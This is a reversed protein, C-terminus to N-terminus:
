GFTKKEIVEFGLNGKVNEEEGPFVVLDEEDENFFVNFKEISVNLKQFSLSDRSLLPKNHIELCRRVFVDCHMLMTEIQFQDKEMFNEKFDNVEDNVVEVNKILSEQIKEAEIENLFSDINKILKIFSIKEIPFNNYCFFQKKIVDAEECIQKALTLLNLNKSHLQLQVKEFTESIQQCTTSIFQLDSPLKTLVSELNQTTKNTHFTQIQNTQKHLLQCNKQFLIFTPHNDHMDKVYQSDCEILTIHKNKGTFVTAPGTNQIKHQTFHKMLGWILM